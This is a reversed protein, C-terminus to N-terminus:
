DPTFTMQNQSPRKIRPSFSFRGFTQRTSKRAFAPRTKRALTVPRNRTKPKEGTHLDACNISMSVDKRRLADTRLKANPTRDGSCLGSSPQSLRPPLLRSARINARGKPCVSAASKQALTVPCKAGEGEGVNSLQMDFGKRPTTTIRSGPFATGARGALALRCAPSNAATGM